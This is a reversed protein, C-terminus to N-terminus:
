KNPKEDTETLLNHETSLVEKSAKEKEENIEDFVIDRGQIAKQRHIEQLNREKKVKRELEQVSKLNIKLAEEVKYSLKNANYCEETGKFYKDTNEQINKDMIKLYDNIAEDHFHILQNAMRMYHFYKKRQEALALTSMNEENRINEATVNLVKRKINGRMNSRRVIESKIKEANGEAWWRLTNQMNYVNFNMENLQLIHDMISIQDDDNGSNIKDEAKPLFCCLIVNMKRVRDDLRDFKEKSAAFNTALIALFINLLIYSFLIMFSFVFITGSVLDEQLITSVDFNGMIIIFCALMSDPLSSFNDEYEGFAFNGMGAFGILLTMFIILFYIIDEQSAFIASILIRLNGAYQLDEIARLTYILITVSCYNMYAMKINSLDRFNDIYDINNHNYPLPKNNEMAEIVFMLWYILSTIAFGFSLLDLVRFASLIYYIKRLFEPCKQTRQYLQLPTFYPLEKEFWLDYEIWKEVFGIGFFYMYQVLLVAFVIEFVLIVFDLPTTYTNLLLPFSYYSSTLKGTSYSKFIVANYFYATTSPEFGVFEIAFIWTDPGLIADHIFQYSLNALSSYDAPWYVEYGGKREYGGYLSYNYTKKSINGIIQDTREGARNRTDLESDDDLRVFMKQLNNKGHLLQGQRFSVRFESGILTEFVNVQNNNGNTFNPFAFEIWNSYYEFDSIDSFDSDPLYGCEVQYKLNLMKEKASSVMTYGFNVNTHFFVITIYLCVFGLYILARYLMAGCRKDREMNAQEEIFLSTLPIKNKEASFGKLPNYERDFDESEDKIQNLQFEFRNRTREFENKFKELRKHFPAVLILAWRLGFFLWHEEIFYVVKKGTIDRGSVKYKLEIDAERYGKLLFGVFMNLLIFVMTIMFTVFLVTGMIMDYELLSDFSAYWWNMFQFLCTIVATFSSYSSDHSGFYIYVYLVFALIVILLLGIFHFIDSGARALAGFLVSVREIIGSLYKLIRIFIVIMSYASISKCLYLINTCSYFTDIVEPQTIQNPVNTLKSYEVVFRIWMIFNVFSLLINLMDLVNWLNTFHTFFITLILRIKEFIFNYLGMVAQAALNQEGQEKNRNRREEAIKEEQIEDDVKAYTAYLAIPQQVVYLCLIIVFIGELFARFLNNGSSSYYYLNVNYLKFSTTIAGTKDFLVIGQIYTFIEVYPNYLVMDILISVTKNDVWQNAQLHQTIADSQNLTNNFINLISVFGPFAYKTTFTFDSTDGYTEKNEDDHVGDSPSFGDGIWVQPLFNAFDRFPSPQVKQRRQILRIPSFVYNSYAIDATGNRERNRGIYYYPQYCYGIMENLWMFFRFRNDIDAFCYNYGSFERNIAADIENHTPIDLIMFCVTIYTVCFVLFIYIERNTLKVDSKPEKIRTKINEDSLIRDPDPADDVEESEEKSIDIKEDKRM